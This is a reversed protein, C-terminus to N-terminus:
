NEALSGYPPSFFILTVLDEEIDFVYHEVEREVFIVDGEAVPDAEDGIQITASGSVVFYVEDETHPDQPDTGGAELRYAELSMSDRRLFEIFQEDEDDLRQIVDNIQIPEM